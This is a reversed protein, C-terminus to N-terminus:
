CASQRVYEFPRLQKDLIMIESIGVHTQAAPIEM